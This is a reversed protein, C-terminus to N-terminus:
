DSDQGGQTRLNSLTCTMVITVHLLDVGATGFGFTRRYFGDSTVNWGTLAARDLVESYNTVNCDVSGVMMNIDNDRNERSGLWNITTLRGSATVLPRPSFNCSLERIPYSEDIQDTTLPSPYGERTAWVLNEMAAMAAVLQRAAAARVDM